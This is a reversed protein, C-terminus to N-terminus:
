HIAELKSIQKGAQDCAALRFAYSGYSGSASLECHGDNNYRITLTEAGGVRLLARICGLWDDTRFRCKEELEASGEEVVGNM